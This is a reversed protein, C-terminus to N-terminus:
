YGGERDVLSDDRKRKCWDELVGTSSSREKGRIGQSCIVGKDGREEGKEGEKGEEM